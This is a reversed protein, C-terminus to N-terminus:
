LRALMEGALRIEEVNITHSRGPYRRVIVQAGISSLLRGSEEVRAWPVHPDPDGSSLLTPTGALDGTLALPSEVPGILGGTFAILGGYRKPNRGIFETALCAGQSFGSVVIREIAIGGDLALKIAAEVRGLASTLYPENQERPALFSNPYWSNETAAPALMAWDTPVIERGLALIDKVSGGRGHLLIIARNAGGLSSGAQVIPQSGHPDLTM